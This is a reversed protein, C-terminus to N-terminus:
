ITWSSTGVASGGSSGVEAGLTATLAVVSGGFGSAALESGSQIPL